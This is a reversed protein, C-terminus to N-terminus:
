RPRRGTRRASTAASVATGVALGLVAGGIVDSPYHVGLHLRSYGVAAALANLPLSLEPLDWGVASAFAFASATHGSPFSSSAPEPAQRHAADGLQTPRRRRVVGKAVVNAVVSATGVAAMGGVAAHRGRRGGALALAAALAAWLKAHSAANSVWAMPADLAPTETREVADYIALDLADSDGLLRHLEDAAAGPPAAGADRRAANPTM